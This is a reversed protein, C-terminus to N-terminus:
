VDGPGNARGGGYRGGGGGAAQAGGGTGGRREGRSATGLDGGTRGAGGNSSDAGAGTSSVNMGILDSKSANFTWTGSFNPRDQAEVRASVAVGAVCVAALILRGSSSTKSRM